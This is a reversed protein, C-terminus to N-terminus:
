LEDDPWRFSPDKPVVTPESKPKDTLKPHVNQTLKSELRKAIGYSVSYGFEDQDDNTRLLGLVEAITQERAWHAGYMFISLPTPELPSVDDIWRLYEEQGEDAFTRNEERGPTM